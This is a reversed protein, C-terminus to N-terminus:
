EPDIRLTSHSVRRTVSDSQAVPAQHQEPSRTRGRCHCQAIPSGGGAWRSRRSSKGWPSSRESLGATLRVKFTPPAPRQRHRCAPKLAMPQTPCLGSFTGRPCREGAKPSMMQATVDCASPSTNSYLEATSCRRGLGQSPTRLDSTAACRDRQHVTAAVSSIPQHHRIAKGALEPSRKM